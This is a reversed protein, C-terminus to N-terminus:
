HLREPHDIMTGDLYAKLAQHIDAIETMMPIVGRGILGNYAGMGMGRALLVQCDAIPDMMAAHRQGAGPGEGHSEGPQHEHHHPEGAFQSHNAKPRAEQATVQGNEITFVMYHTARGFHASITTFDDTIVAIKM